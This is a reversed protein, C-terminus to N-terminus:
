FSSTGGPCAEGANSLVCRGRFWEIELGSFDRNGAEAPSPHNAGVVFTLRIQRTERGSAVPILVYNQNYTMQRRQFEWRAVAHGNALIDVWFSQDQGAFLPRGSVEIWIGTGQPLRVPLIMSAIPGRTSVTGAGTKSWGDGLYRVGDGGARFDVYDELPYSGTAQAPWMGSPFLSLVAGSAAFATVALLCATWGWSLAQQMITRRLERWDYERSVHEWALASSTLVWTAVPQFRHESPNAAQRHM